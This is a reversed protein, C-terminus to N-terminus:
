GSSQSMPASLNIRLASAKRYRKRAYTQLCIVVLSITDAHQKHLKHLELFGTFDLSKEM